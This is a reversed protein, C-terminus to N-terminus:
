DKVEKSFSFWISRDWYVSPKMKICSLFLFLALALTLCFLFIERQAVWFLLLWVLFGGVVTILIFQLLAILYARTITLDYKEQIRKGVRYPGGILMIMYCLLFFIGEGDISM